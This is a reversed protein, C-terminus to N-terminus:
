QAQQKWVPLFLLLVQCNGDGVMVKMELALKSLRQKLRQEESQLDPNWNSQDAAAEAQIALELVQRDHTWM